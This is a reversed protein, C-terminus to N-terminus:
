AVKQETVVEKRTIEQLFAVEAARYPEGGTRFIDHFWLEPENEYALEWSDWPCHTQSKGQVFGWNYAGVGHEKLLPLIEQFTSDFARAMYETCLMPRGYKKLSLLRREMGERNEYCHFSLVDCQTFMFHDLESLSDLDSWQWPAMTLPQVPDLARIWNIAKKLLQLSLEAKHQVYQDDKYSALNMNDPENYVDWILVREDNKFHSVIGQVYGRLGDYRSADNLVDFGPCQVWGSNHVNHRPEPQLGAKPFPDWVADFFVFMTRIGHKWAISLFQDIRQLYAQPDQEWVLHHLFVRITNFGLGAAWSLEKDILFPDFTEAQWMELQNIATAPIYNCGVLWGNKESWENARERSWPHAVESNLEMVPTPHENHRM